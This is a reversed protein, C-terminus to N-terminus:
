KIYPIGNKNLGLLIGSDDIDLFPSSFPFFASLGQTHINRKIKLTDKAFPLVSKYSDMSQFVPTRSQIMLGELEARVKNALLSVEERTKGKCMIYLSVNFLKQKGKQLDELVKRTSKYKIELSPNIIGKKSDSYLDSQQKQLEQNLQIMTLDIPFPEVHISLDYNQSSSIIKDLFGVEVSHPYGYVVLVKCFFDDTQFFDHYFVTKEPSILYQGFKDVIDGDKLEKQRKCAVSDYLYDLIEYTDLRRSRIGISSLKSQLITFQIDLGYKEKILIVFRRNNIGEESIKENIFDKYSQYINKDKSSKELRQFHKSLNISTSSVHFQVPFDLCNLVKQFGFIISEKEDEQRIMLNIPFVEIVALKCESTGLVDDKLSQLDIIKDLQKTNIKVEQNKLFLFMNVIKNRGDFYMFFITVIIIGVSMSGSFEIPFKTGFILFVIILFAPAAYILQEFTLGFVIKEKHQLPPPIDYAM